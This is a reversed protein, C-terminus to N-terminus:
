LRMHALSNRPRICSNEPTEHQCFLKRKNQNTSIHKIQGGVILSHILMFNLFYNQGAHVACSTSWWWCCTKKAACEARSCCVAVERLPNFPPPSSIPLSSLCNYKMKVCRWEVPLDPRIHLPLWWRRHMSWCAWFVLVARGGEREAGTVTVKKWKSILVTLLRRSEKRRNRGRM